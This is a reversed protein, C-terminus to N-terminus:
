SHFATRKDVLDLKLRDAPRLSSLLTVCLETNGKMAAKTLVTDGSVSDRILSLLEYRQDDPVKRLLSKVNKM